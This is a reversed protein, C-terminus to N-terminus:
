QLFHTLKSTHYLSLKHMARTCAIYLLGKDYNTSYNNESVDYIMVADFELGKAMYVPVITVGTINENEVYDVLTADIKDKLQFYLDTAQKKSKTIISVSDFGESKFNNIDDILKQNLEEITKRQIIEPEGENREFFETDNGADLLKKS